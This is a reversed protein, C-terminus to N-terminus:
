KAENLSWDYQIYKLKTGDQIRVDSYLNIYDTLSGNKTFDSKYWKFIESIEASEAGVRNRKKDNVFERSAQELLQELNEATFAKNILKPCSYSACNIAFHIRPEDLKRLIKHEIHGLSITKEGVKIWKKDWPSKIEKISLVPYNLLILKVTAANYLNIYYVLVEERTAAVSPSQGSLEELYQDLLAEDNKFARYDVNGDSDVYKRLLNDWSNHLGPSEVMLGSTKLGEEHDGSFQLPQLFLFLLIGLNYIM